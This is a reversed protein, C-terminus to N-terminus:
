QGGWTVQSGYEFVELGVAEAFTARERVLNALRGVGLLDPSTAVAVALQRDLRGGALVTEAVAGLHQDRLRLRDLSPTM